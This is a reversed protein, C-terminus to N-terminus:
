LNNEEIMGNIIEIIEKPYDHHIFHSADKFTISESKNSLNMLEEQCKKWNPFGNNGSSIVKIEIEDIKGNECVIKGNTNIEKRENIMTQNWLNRLVMEVQLKKIDQNIKQNGEFKKKFNPFITLFRLIGSKRLFKLIYMGKKMPDDFEQCFKPSASDLFIIGRVKEPYKQAFRIAQIGSLSHAVLIYPPKQNTQDLVSNLEEVLININRKKNTYSSKGMGFRDYIFIKSNESIANWLEYMDTYTTSVGSGSLFIVTIRGNGKEFYYINENDYIQVKNEMFSFSEHKQFSKNMYFDYGKVLILFLVLILLIIGLLKKIKNM